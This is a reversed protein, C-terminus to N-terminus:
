SRSSEWLKTAFSLQLLSFFGSLSFKLWFLQFSLRPKFRIIACTLTRRVRRPALFFEKVRLSSIDYIYIYIYIYIYSMILRLTLSKVRTRNVHLFHHALLALLYCIPNLEANLPNILFSEDENNCALNLIFLKCKRLNNFMDHWTEHGFLFHKEPHRVNCSTCHVLLFILLLSPCCFSLFVNM